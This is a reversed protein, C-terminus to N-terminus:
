ACFVNSNVIAFPMLGGIDSERQISPYCRHQKQNVICLVHKPLKDANCGGLISNGNSELIKSKRLLYELKDQM